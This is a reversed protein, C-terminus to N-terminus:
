NRHRRPGRSGEGTHEEVSIRKVDQECPPHMEVSVRIAPLLGDPRFRMMLVLLLGFVLYRANVVDPSIWTIGSHGSWEVLMGIGARLVETLPILIAAGLMVGAISGMGGLVILCLILISEWFKFMDPHLFHFWGSYCAGAAGGVAASVAFALTKYRAVHIGCTAAAVEDERIAFWARGIRSDELRRSVFAILAVLCFLLYFYEWDQTLAHGLISPPAIGPIGMPGRTLWIENRIVLIVLESFGFTVIAFYDGTLKLTPAARVIGWLASHLAALPLVVWFSLDFQSTLLGATYAGVGFFGVFGLDLLGTYGPVFNLGLALAM